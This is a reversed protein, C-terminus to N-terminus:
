FHRVDEGDEAELLRESDAKADRLRRLISTSLSGVVAMVVVVIIFRPPTPSVSVDKMRPGAMRSSVTVAEGDVNMDVFSILFPSDMADSRWIIAPSSLYVGVCFWYTGGGEGGRVGRAWRLPIVITRASRASVEREIALHDANPAFPELRGKRADTKHIEVPSDLQVHEDALSLADDIVPRLIAPDSRTIQHVTLKDRMFEFSSYLYHNFPTHIRM